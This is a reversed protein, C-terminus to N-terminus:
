ANWARRPRVKLLNKTNPGFTINHQLPDYTAHSVLFVRFRCAKDNGARCDIFPCVERNYTQLWEVTVCIDNNNNRICERSAHLLYAAIIMVHM